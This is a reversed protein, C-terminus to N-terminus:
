EGPGGVEEVREGGEEREAVEAFWRRWARQAGSESCPRGREELVLARECRKAEGAVVGDGDGDGDGDGGM